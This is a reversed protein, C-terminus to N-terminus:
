LFSVVKLSKEEFKGHSKIVKRLDKGNFVKASSNMFKLPYKRSCKKPM